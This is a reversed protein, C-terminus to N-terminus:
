AASSHASRFCRMWASRSARRPKPTPRTAPRTPSSPPTPPSDYLEVEGSEHEVYTFGNAVDRVGFYDGLGYTHVIVAAQDREIVLYIGHRAASTDVIRLEDRDPFHSATASPVATSIATALAAFTADATSGIAVTVAGGGVGGASDFEFLVSPRPSLTTDGYLFRLRDGDNPQGTYSLGDDRNPRWHELLFDERWQTVPEQTIWPAFSTGDLPVPPVVGALAAVTPAVDINLVAAESVMGESAHRPDYVVMPVRLCEEYPCEKGQLFIRHEGWGVGNDSTVLIVTDRDVGLQVLDGLLLRLQEDVPLLSEYASQRVAENYADLPDGPSSSFALQLWRPKDTMDLESWSAPHWPQLGAFFRFHRAASNPIFFPTDVHSAYPTWVAFFPRDNEVADSVFGRLEAGLLDTSYQRDSSHDDYVTVRGREDVLRYTPGRIGGYHEGSTMGRWRSWGPPVYYTGGPGGTQETAGFGYGNVYKGFLGTTYGAAQLWVAITQRDAGSARFAAAGGGVVRVAHHSAFLGSLLSARSPACLPDVVFSNTFTVGQAALQALTPMRDVGDARTDDLQILLLNPQNLAARRTRKAKFASSLRATAAGYVASWCTGESSKLQVAVPMAISQLPQLVLNPGHGEASARTKGTAGSKVRIRRVGDAVFDTRRYAERREGV